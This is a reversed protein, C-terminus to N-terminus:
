HYDNMGYPPRLPMRIRERKHPSGAYRIGVPSVSPKPPTPLAVRREAALDAITRARPVGERDVKRLSLREAAGHPVRVAEPTLERLLDATCSRVPVTRGPYADRTGCRRFTPVRRGAGSRRRRNARSEGSWAEVAVPLVPGRPRDPRPAAGLVKELVPRPAPPAGVCGEPPPGRQRVPVPEDGALLLFRARFRYRHGSRSIRSRERNSRSGSRRGSRPASNPFEDLFLVRTPSSRL